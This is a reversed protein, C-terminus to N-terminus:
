STEPRIRRRYESPTIGEERTFVQHLRISNSFGTDKAVQKILLDTDALLRKAKQVRLRRIEAAISRGTSGQFRREITRRSVGSVTAVDDVSINEHNHQEIYRMALIVLEDDVAFFDTSDRAIVGSPRIFRHELPTAKNRMLQDLMEAAQFGIQEYNVEVSTMSPPPVEGIMPENIATIMAIDEPVKLGHREFAHVIYRITVDNFAAFLAIPPTWNSIWNDLSQQFRAWSQATRYFFRPFRACNCRFGLSELAAHYAGVMLQHSRERPSSICGFNRFGRQALHELATQGITPFDPFVGPLKSMHPSNLWVNVVPVNAQRARKALESSARAIIGDYRKLQRNETPVDLSFFEDVECMWEGSERAYRQTGAFVDLHRRYPWMLELMIGVRLKRM